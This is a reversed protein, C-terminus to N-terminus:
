NARTLFHLLTDSDNTSGMSSKINKNEDIIVLYPQYDVKFKEIQIERNIEGETKSSKSLATKDDVSLNLIVFNERLYDNVEVSYSMISELTRSNVSYRANFFVLALKHMKRACELGYLYDNFAVLNKGFAKLKVTDCYQAYRRKLEPINNAPNNSENQTKRSSKKRQEYASVLQRYNWDESLNDLMFQHLREIEDKKIGVLLLSKESNGWTNVSAKTAELINQTIVVKRISLYGTDSKIHDISNLLDAYTVKKDHDSALKVLLTGLAPGNGIIKLDVSDLGFCEIRKIDNIIQQPAVTDIQQKLLKDCEISPQALVCLCSSFILSIAIIFKYLGVKVPVVM